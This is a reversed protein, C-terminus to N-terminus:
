SKGILLLIGYVVLFIGVVWAVISPLSLIPLILLGAVISVIGVVLKNSFIEMDVEQIFNDLGYCQANSSDICFVKQLKMTEM